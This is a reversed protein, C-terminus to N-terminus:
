FEQLQKILDELQQEFEVQKLIELNRDLEKEIDENSLQLEKLKEQLDNKNLQDKLDSLEKYLEKIEDPMIEDFLRELETQKKLMDESPPSMSNLNDFNNKTANKLEEIKQEVSTQKQIIEELKKRDRWDLSDKEILSKEFEALEKKLEHLMSIEETIDNKVFTNNETYDEKIEEYTPMNITIIESTTAKYGNQKDNDRIIFYCNITEGPLAIKKIEELSQLFTQSRILNQINIKEQWSTDRSLGYINGVFQLDFFGYDDQIIGTIISKNTDDETKNISIFPHSDLIIKIDYYVTDIFSIKSNALSISYKSNSTIKKTLKFNNNLSSSLLFTDQNLQFKLADSEKTEIDWTLLSGEPVKVSGVNKLVEKNLGTHKPPTITIILNTIEPREIVTIEYQNSYQENASLYFKTNKRIGRFTYSYKSNTLKKMKKVGNDYHIYVENPREDGSILINITKNGKEM